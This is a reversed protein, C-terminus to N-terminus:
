EATDRKRSADIAAGVMGSYCAPQVSRAPSSGADDKGAAEVHQRQLEDEFYVYALPHGLGDKVIYSKPHEKSRVVAPTPPTYCPGGHDACSRVCGRAAAQVGGVAATPYM